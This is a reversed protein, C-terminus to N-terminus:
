VCNTCYKGTKVPTRVELILPLSTSVDPLDRTDPEEFELPVEYDQQFTPTLLVTVGVYLLFLSIALIMSLSFRSIFTKMMCLTFTGIFSVFNCFTQSVAVQKPCTRVGMENYEKKETKEMPLSNTRWLIGM